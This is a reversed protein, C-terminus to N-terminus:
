QHLRWLALVAATMAACTSGKAIAAQGWRRGWGCAGGRVGTDYFQYYVVLWVAMKLFLKADVDNGKEGKLTKLRAYDVSVLM